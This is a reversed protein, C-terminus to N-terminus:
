EWRAGRLLAAAPGPSRPAPPPGRQLPSPPTKSRAFSLYYLQLTTLTTFCQRAGTLPAAAPEPSRHCCGMSCHYTHGNTLLSPHDVACHQIALALFGPKHTPLINVTTSRCTGCSHSGVEAKPLERHEVGGWGQHLMGAVVRCPPVTMTDAKRAGCSHIDAQAKFRWKIGGSYRIGSCGQRLTATVARCPMVSM